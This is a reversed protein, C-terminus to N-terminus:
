EGAVKKAMNKMKHIFDLFDHEAMAAGALLAISVLPKLPHNVVADLKLAGMPDVGALYVFAASVAYVMAKKQKESATTWIGRLGAVVTRILFGYAGLHIIVDQLQTM